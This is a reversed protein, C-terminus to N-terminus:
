FPYDEAKKFDFISKFTKEDKVSIPKDKSEPLPKNSAYSGKGNYKDWLEVEAKTAQFKNNPKESDTSFVLGNKDEFINRAINEFLTSTVGHPDHLDDNWYQVVKKEFVVYTITNTNTEFSYVYKFAPNGEFAQKVIDEITQTHANYEINIMLKINGFIKAIPLLKKLAEAKEYKSVELTIEMNDEDFKVSVDKDEAFMATLERVYTYWPASMKTNM